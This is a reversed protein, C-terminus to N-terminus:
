LGLEDLVQAHTYRVGDDEAIANRLATVDEQDEIWEFVADRIFDSISKGQFAAYKRVLQADSSNLWISMITVLGSRQKFAIRELADGM